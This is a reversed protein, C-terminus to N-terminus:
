SATLRAAIMSQLETRSHTVTVLRTPRRRPETGPTVGPTSHRPTDARPASLGPRTGARDLTPVRQSSSIGRKRRAGM